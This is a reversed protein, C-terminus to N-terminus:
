PAPPLDNAQRVLQFFQDGRVVEFQSGLGEAIKEINEPTNNWALVGVSIFKPSNGDWDSAEQTIKEIAGHTSSVSLLVSKPLRHNLITTQSHNEWNFFM